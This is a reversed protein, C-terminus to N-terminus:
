DKLVFLSELIERMEDDEVDEFMQRAKIRKQQARPDFKHAKKEKKYNKIKDKTSNFEDATYKGHSFKINKVKGKFMPYMKEIKDIIVQSILGLEQSFISHRTMIILSSGRIRLPITNESLMKGVIQEWNKVLYLFDFTSKDRSYRGKSRRKDKYKQETSYIEESDDYSTLIDSISKISM